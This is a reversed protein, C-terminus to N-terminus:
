VELIKLINLGEEVSCLKDKNKKDIGLFAKLMEKYSQEINDSMVMTKGDIKLTNTIFDYSSVGTDIM